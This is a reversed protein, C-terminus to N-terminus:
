KKKKVTKAPTASSPGKTPEKIPENKLSNLDKNLGTFDSDNILYVTPKGEVMAYCKGDPRKAGISIKKSGSALGITITLEPKAFGMVSDPLVADQFDTTNFRSLTSLIGEVQDIKAVFQIPSVINWTTGSDAKTLAVVQGDGKVLSINKVSAKDFSMILKDRWRLIDTFFSNRIGGDVTYVENSGISRVYNSNWDPGNKGILVSGKSKGSLDFVEVFLGKVTDVEFIAQKERNESILVSRKMDSLKELAIAVSASDTPFDGSVPAAQSTSSIGQTGASTAGNVGHSAVWVDGKKHITVAGSADKIVFSGVKDNFFKLSQESPKKNSLKESMIIVLVAIVAISVLTLLRKTTM